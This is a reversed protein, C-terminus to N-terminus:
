LKEDLLCTQYDDLAQSALQNAKLHNSHHTNSLKVFHWNYSISMKDQFIRAQPLNLNCEGEALSRIADMQFLIYLTRDYQLSYNIAELIAEMQGVIEDCQHYGGVIGNKEWIIKNNTAIVVAWSLVDNKFASAINAYWRDHDAKYKLRKKRSKIVPKSIQGPLTQKNKKM